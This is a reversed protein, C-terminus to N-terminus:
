LCYRLTINYTNGDTWLETANGNGTFTLTTSAGSSNKETISGSQPFCSTGNFAVNNFTSLTTTNAGNNNETVVVGSTVTRAASGCSSFQVILPSGGLAPNTTLTFDLASYASSTAPSTRVIHVGNIAVTQGSASGTITFGGNVQPSQYGSLSSTDLSVTESTYNNGPASTVTETTGSLFTRVLSNGTGCVPVGALCQSNSGFALNQGGANWTINSSGTSTCSNYSLSVNSGGGCSSSSFIPCNTSSNALPLPDLFSFVSAYLSIKKTSNIAVSGSGSAGSAIGTAFESGFDFPTFSNSSSKGCSTTLLLLFILPLNKVHM